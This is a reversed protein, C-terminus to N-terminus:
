KIWSIINRLNYRKLNEIINLLIYTAKFRFLKKKNSILHENENLGKWFLDESKNIPYSTLSNPDNVYVAVIKDIWYGSNNALITMYFYRDEGRSFDENYKVNEIKNKNIVVASTWCLNKYDILLELYEKIDFQKSNIGIIRKETKHNQSIRNAAYLIYNPNELIQNSFISIANKNLIDDGDVFYVYNSKAKKLGLNRAASVGQNITTIIKTFNPKKIKEIIRLSNDTSGDNVIIIEEPLITQNLISLITKRIFKEKNYVTVVVCIM